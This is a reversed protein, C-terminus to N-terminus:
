TTTFSMGCGNTTECYSLYLNVCNDADTNMLILYATIIEGWGSVYAIIDVDGAGAVSSPKTAFLIGTADGFYSPISDLM